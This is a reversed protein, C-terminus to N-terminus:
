NPDYPPCLLSLNLPFPCPLSLIFPFPFSHSGMGRMREGLYATTDILMIPDEAEDADDPEHEDIGAGYPGGGCM